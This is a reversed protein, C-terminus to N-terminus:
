KKWLNGEVVPESFIEPSIKLLESVYHGNNLGM